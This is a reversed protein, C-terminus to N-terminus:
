DKKIKNWIVDSWAPRFLGLFGGSIHAVHDFVSKGRLLEIIEFTMLLPFFTNIPLSFFPLFIPAVAIGHNSVLSGLISYIAGSAGVSPTYIRRMRKYSQSFLSSVTASSLYFALFQGTGLENELIPGFSLLGLMNLALHSLNAHNFCSLTLSLPSNNWSSFFPGNFNFKGRRLYVLCNCALIALTGKKSYEENNNEKSLIYYSSFTFGSTYLIKQFLIGNKM